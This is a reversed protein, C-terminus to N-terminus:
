DAKKLVCASTRRILSKKEEPLRKRAQLDRCAGVKKKKRWERARVRKFGDWRKLARERARVGCVGALTGKEESMRVEESIKKGLSCLRILRRSSLGREPEKRERRSSLSERDGTGREKYWVFTKSAMSSRREKDEAIASFCKGKKRTKREQARSTVGKKGKKERAFIQQRAEVILGRRGKSSTTVVGIARRVLQMNRKKGRKRSLLDIGFLMPSGKKKVESHRHDKKRKRRSSM